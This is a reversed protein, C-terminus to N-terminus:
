SLVSSVFTLHIMQALELQNEEKTWHPKTHIGYDISKVNMQNFSHRIVKILLASDEFQPYGNAAYYTLVNMTSQHFLTDVLKVNSRKIIKSLLVKETLKHSMKRSKGLEIRYLEQLHSFDPHLM